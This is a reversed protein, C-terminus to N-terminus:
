ALMRKTSGIRRIEDCQETRESEGLAVTMGILLWFFIAHYPSELTVNMSAFVSLAAFCSLLCGSIFVTDECKSQRLMRILLRIVVFTAVSVILLGSVGTRALIALYSNHPDYHDAIAVHFPEENFFDHSFGVGFVPSTSWLSVVNLWFAARWAANAEELPDFFTQYKLTFDMLYGSLFHWIIAAAVCALIAWGWRRRYQLRSKFGTFM